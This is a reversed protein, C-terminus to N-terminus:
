ASTKGRRLVSRALGEQFMEHNNDGLADQIMRQSEAGERKIREIKMHTNKAAEAPGILGEENRYEVVPEVLGEAKRHEDAAAMSQNMSDNGQQVSMEVLYIAAYSTDYAAKDRTKESLQGYADQFSEFIAATDQELPAEKTVFRNLWDTGKEEMERGDHMVRLREALDPDRQELSEKFQEPNVAGSKLLELDRGMEAIRQAERTIGEDDMRDLTKLQSYEIAGRLNKEARPPFGREIERLNRGLDENTYDLEGTFTEMGKRSEEGVPGHVKEVADVRLEQVGRELPGTLAQMLRRSTEESVYREDGAVADRVAMLARAGNHEAKEREPDLWPTERHDAKGDYIDSLVRATEPQEASMREAFAEINSDIKRNLDGPDFDTEGSTQHELKNRAM